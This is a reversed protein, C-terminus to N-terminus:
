AGHECEWTDFWKVRRASDNGGSGLSCDDVGGILRPFLFLHETGPM